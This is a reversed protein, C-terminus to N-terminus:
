VAAGDADSPPPPTAETPSASQDPRAAAGGFISNMATQNKCHRNRSRSRQSSLTLTTCTIKLDDARDKWGLGTSLM